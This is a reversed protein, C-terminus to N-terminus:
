CIRLNDFSLRHCAPIYSNIISTKSYPTYANEFWQPKTQRWFDEYYLLVSSVHQRSPLSTTKFLSYDLRSQTKKLLLAGCTVDRATKAM